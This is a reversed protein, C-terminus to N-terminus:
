NEAKRYKPHVDEAEVSIVAIGGGTQKDIAFQDRGRLLFAKAPDLMPSPQRGLRDIITQAFAAQGPWWYRKIAAEM